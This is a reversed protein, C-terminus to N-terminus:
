NNAKMQNRLSQRHYFIRCLKGITGIPIGLISAVQKQTCLAHLKGVLEVTRWDVKASRFSATLTFQGAKYAYDTERQKQIKAIAQKQTLNRM